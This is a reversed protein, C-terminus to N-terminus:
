LAERVTCHGEHLRLFLNKGHGDTYDQLALDVEAAFLRGSLTTLYKGVIIQVFHQQSAKNTTGLQKSNWPSM